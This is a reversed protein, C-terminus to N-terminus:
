GNPKMEFKIGSASMRWRAIKEYNEPSIPDYQTEADFKPTCDEISMQDEGMAALMHATIWGTLVDFRDRGILDMRDYAIWESFERATM